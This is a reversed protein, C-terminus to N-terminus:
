DHSSRSTLEESSTAAPPQISVLLRNIVDAWAGDDIDKLDLVAAAKSGLSLATILRAFADADVAPDITGADQALRVVDAVVGEGRAIDPTVVSAVGADRAAALVFELTLAGGQRTSKPMRTGIERFAQLASSGDGSELVSALVSPASAAVAASLLEGKSSFHNYIAGTTVGAEKAIESVRTGEFGRTLLVRMTADLLQQRTEESTVGSKRGVGSFM